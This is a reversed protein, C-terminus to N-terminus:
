ATVRQDGQKEEDRTPPIREVADETRRLNPVIGFLRHASGNRQLNPLIMFAM